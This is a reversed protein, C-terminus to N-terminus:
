FNIMNLSSFKKRPTQVVLHYYMISIDFKQIHSQFKALIIINEISQSLQEVDFIM